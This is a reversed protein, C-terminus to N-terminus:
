PKKEVKGRPVLASDSELCYKPNSSPTEWRKERLIWHVISKCEMLVSEGTERVLSDSEIACSELQSGSGNVRNRHIVCCWMEM